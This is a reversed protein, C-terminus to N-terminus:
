EIDLKSEQWQRLEDRRLRYCELVLNLARRPLEGKIMRDEITVTFEYEVSYAPVM